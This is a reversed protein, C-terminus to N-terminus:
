GPIREPSDTEEQPLQELAQHSVGPIAQVARVLLRLSVGLERQSSAVQALIGSSREAVARLDHGHRESDERRQDEVAQLRAALTDYLKEHRACQNAYTKAQQEALAEYRQAQKADRLETYRWLAGIAAALAVIATILM